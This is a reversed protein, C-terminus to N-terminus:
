RGRDKGLWRKDVLRGNRITLDMIDSVTLLENDGIDTQVRLTGSTKPGVIAQVERVSMGIRLADYKARDSKVNLVLYAAGAIVAVALVAGGIKNSPDM